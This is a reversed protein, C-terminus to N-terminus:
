QGAVWLQWNEASLAASSAAAVESIPRGETVSDVALAWPDGGNEAVFLYYSGAADYAELAGAEQYIREDSFVDVGLSAVAAKLEPYAIFQAAGSAYEAYRAFGELAATSTAWSQSPAATYHIAHAFEHIFVARRDFDAGPGLVVTTGGTAQGTAISPDIIESGQPRYSSRAFGAADIEGEPKELNGYRWRELRENSATIGSTFGTQPVDGGMRTALELTTVAAEEAEDITRTVLEREDELAFLVVHDRREVYIKGDDWPQIVDRPVFSTIRLSDGSGTTTIRYYSGQTLILGADAAGSGRMENAPFGLDVGINVLQSGDADTNPAIFGTTWGLASLNDWWLALQAQADGEAYSLFLERDHQQLAENMDFWAQDYSSTEADYDEEVWAPTTDGAPVAAAEGAPYPTPWNLAAVSGAVGLCLVTAGIVILQALRARRNRRRPQTAVDGTERSAGAGSTDASM